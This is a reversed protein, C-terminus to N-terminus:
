RPAIEEADVHRQKQQGMQAPGLGQEDANHEPQQQRSHFSDSTRAPCIRNMGAAPNMNSSGVHPQLLTSPQRSITM